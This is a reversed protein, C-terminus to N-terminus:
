PLLSIREYVYIEDYNLNKKLMIFDEKFKKNLDYFCVSFLKVEIVSKRSKKM